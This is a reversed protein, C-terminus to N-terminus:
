IALLVALGVTIPKLKCVALWSTVSYSGYRAQKCACKPSTFIFYLQLCHSNCVSTTCYIYCGLFDCNFICFLWLTTVSIPLINTLKDCAVKFTSILFQLTVSHSLFTFCILFLVNKKNDRLRLLEWNSNQYKSLLFFLFFLEFYLSIM